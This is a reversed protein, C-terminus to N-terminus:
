AFECNRQPSLGALSSRDEIRTRRKVEIEEDVIDEDAVEIDQGQDGGGRVREREREDSENGCDVDRTSLSCAGCGQVRQCLSCIFRPLSEEESFSAFGNLLAGVASNELAIWSADVTVDGQGNLSPHFLEILAHLAFPQIRAMTGRLSLSENSIIMAGHKM